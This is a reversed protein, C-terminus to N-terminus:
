NIQGAAAAVEDPYGAAKCAAYTNAGNWSTDYTCMWDDVYLELITAGLGTSFTLLGPALSGTQSRNGPDSASLTQLELPQQGLYTQFNACWNGGACPQGKSFFIPDSKQLGQNGLGIGAAIANIATQNPTDFDDPGFQIGSITVILPKQSNLSQQYLLMNKIVGIWDPSVDTTWESTGPQPWPLTVNPSTFGFTTMQKQCAFQRPDTASLGYTPNSQGGIGVGFRLYAVNPNSEYHSIAHAIVDQWARIFNPGWEVPLIGSTCTSDNASGYVPNGVNGIHVAAIDNGSGIAYIVQASPDQCGTTTHDCVTWVGPNAPTGSNDLTTGTGSIQIQMGAATSVGGPFFGIGGLTQIQIIGGTQSASSIPVPQVYWDPTANNTTGFSAPEFIFSVLKGSDSWPQIWGDVKSFDYGGNSTSIAKWPVHFAAGKIYSAGAGAAACKYGAPTDPDTCIFTPVLHKTYCSAPFGGSKCIGDGVPPDLIFLGHAAGNLAFGIGSLGVTQPSGNVNDAISLHASESSATSPTFTLDLTCSSGPSLSSGCNNTLTYDSANAGGMTVALGTLAANGNNSVTVKSSTTTGSRRAGFDLNPPSLAIGPAPPRPPPGHEFPTPTFFACGFQMLCLPFILAFLRLLPTISDRDNVGQIVRIRLPRHSDSFQVAM